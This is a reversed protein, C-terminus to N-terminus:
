FGGPPSSAPPRASRPRFFPCPPSQAAAARRAGAAARFRRPLTTSETALPPPFAGSGALQRAACLVRLPAPPCQGPPRSGARAACISRPLAVAPPLAPRRAVPAGARGGRFLPARRARRSASRPLHLCAAKAARCEWAQSLFQRTAQSPNVPRPNEAISPPFPATRCPCRLGKSSNAAGGRQAPQRRSKLPPSIICFAFKTYFLSYFVGWFPSRM